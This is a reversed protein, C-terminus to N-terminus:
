KRFAYLAIWFNQVGEIILFIGVFTMLLKTGGFPDFLLLLGMACTVLALLLVLWWKSLANKKTELAKIVKFIGDVLIGVGILINLLALIWEPRFLMFIGFIAVVISVALMIQLALTKEEASLFRIILLASIILLAIGIAICILEASQGPKAVMCIGLILMILSILLYVVKNKTGM